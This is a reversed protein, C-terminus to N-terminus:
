ECNTNVFYTSNLDVGSLCTTEGSLSYINLTNEDTFRTVCYSGTVCITYTGSPIKKCQSLGNVSNFNFVGQGQEGTFTVTYPSTNDFNVCVNKKQSKASTLQDISVKECSILSSLLFLFFLNKIKM